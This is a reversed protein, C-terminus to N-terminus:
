HIYRSPIPHQWVLVFCSFIILNLQVPVSPFRVCHEQLMSLQLPAACIKQRVNSQVVWKWVLLTIIGDERKEYTPVVSVWLVSHASALASLAPKPVTVVRRESASSPTTKAHTHYKRSLCPCNQRVLLCTQVMYSTYSAKAIAQLFTEHFVMFTETKVTIHLRVAMLVDLLSSKWFLYESQNIEWLM